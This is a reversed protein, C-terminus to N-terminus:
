VILDIRATMTTSHIPRVRVQNLPESPSKLTALEIIESLIWHEGYSLFHVGTAGSMTTISLDRTKFFSFLSLKIIAIQQASDAM